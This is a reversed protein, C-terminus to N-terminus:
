GAAYAEAFLKGLLFPLGGLGGNKDLLSQFFLRARPASGQVAGNSASGDGLVSGSVHTGHGHPDSSDGPRGRAVIGAVRGQFDPHTDDLGTDAVAVIEGAC